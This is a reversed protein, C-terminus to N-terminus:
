LRRRLTAAFAAMTDRRPLDVYYIVPTQNCTGEGFCPQNASFPPATFHLTQDYFTWVPGIDFGWNRGLDLGISLTVEAIPTLDQADFSAAPGALENFALAHATVYAFGGGVAGRLRWSGLRVERAFVATVRADFTNILGISMWPGVAFDPSAVIGGKSLTAAVGASWGSRAWLDIEGRVALAADAMIQPPRSCDQDTCVFGGRGVVPVMASLALWRQSAPAGSTAPMVGVDIGPPQPPSFSPLPLVIPSQPPSRADHGRVDRALLYLGGDTPVVRVELAICETEAALWREIVRRVDDPARAITVPCSDPHVVPDAVAPVAALSVLMLTLTRM